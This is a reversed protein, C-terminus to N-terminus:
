FYFMVNRHLGRSRYGVSQYGLPAALRFLIATTVVEYGNVEGKGKKGRSTM